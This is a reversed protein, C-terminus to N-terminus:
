STVGQTCRRALQSALIGILIRRADSELEPLRLRRLYVMLDLVEEVADQWPDRGDGRTVPCDYKAIGFDRRQRYLAALEPDTEAEILEMWVDGTGGSPPPQPNQSM